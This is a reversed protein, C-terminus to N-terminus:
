AVPSNSSTAKLSGDIVLDLDQGLKNILYGDQISTGDYLAFLGTKKEPYRHWCDHKLEATTRSLNWFRIADLAIEGCPGIGSQGMESLPLYESAVQRTEVQQANVFLQPESSNLPAEPAVMALHCWEGTSIIAQSLYALGGVLGLVQYGIVDKVGLSTPFGGLVANNGSKCINYCEGTNLSLDTFRWCGLIGLENGKLWKGKVANLSTQELAKRWLRVEGLGGVYAEQMSFELIDGPRTQAQGLVLCGDPAIKAGPALTGSFVSTGFPVITLPEKGEAAIVKPGDDKYIAVRGTKSEWTIAIRQWQAYDMHIGSAICQDNIVISLGNHGYEKVAFDCKIEPNGTAYSVLTTQSNGRFPCVLFELTLETAPFDAFEQVMIWKRPKRGDFFLSGIANLSLQYRSRSSAHVFIDTSNTGGLPRVWSEITFPPRLAFDKIKVPAVRASGSHRALIMLSDHTLNSQTDYYKYNEM